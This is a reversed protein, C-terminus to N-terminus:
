WHKYNNGRCLWCFLSKISPLIWFKSSLYRLCPLLDHRFIAFNQLTGIPITELMQAFNWCFRLCSNIVGQLSKYLIVRLVDRSIQRCSIIYCTSCLIWSHVLLNQPLCGKFFRWHYPRNLYVTDHWFATKWM